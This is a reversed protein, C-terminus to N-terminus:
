GDGDTIKLESFEPTFPRSSANVAHVGLKLDKRWNSLDKPIMHRWKGAGQRVSGYLTDGRRELRLQTSATASAVNPNNAAVYLPQEANERVSFLSYHRYNGNRELTARELRAYTGEDQFLLLGAGNFPTREALTKDGPAFEGAVTLEAVFDGSVDRLVRPANMRGLEASLGHVPGPATIRLRGEEVVFSCDGEPDVTKGWGPIETEALLSSCVIAFCCTQLLLSRFKM